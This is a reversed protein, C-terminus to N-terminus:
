SVQRNIHASTDLEVSLQWSSQDHFFLQLLHVQDSSVKIKADNLYRFSKRKSGTSADA